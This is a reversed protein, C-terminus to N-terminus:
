DYDLVVGRKDLLEGTAQYLTLLARRYAISQALLNAASAVLDDQADLVVFATSVGLDYKKQEADLRKQAFDRAVTAQQVGAKSQEVGAIAQLVDLRIQQEQNRMQLLDRRKAIVADSLGAAARRNRIPLQLTLGVAYTPFNFGFLQDLADGLGGPIALSSTGGVLSREFFNGGLGTASYTGTLNLNPKMQNNAQKISLDDAELARQRQEMEPRYLLARIVTEEPDFTPTYAPPEASETLVVPLNRVDPHLDASVQRRVADEAQQLQYQAQTVQVQATAFQQEPQFIDLPSIAGLELELRSRELFARALELNNEQVGLRERNNVANWYANEAQFLIQIVQQRVQAKTEYLRSEAIMVGLRQIGRGRGRLLPQTLQFQLQESLSPNFSAFSSNDSRRVSSFNTQFETGTDFTQNYGIRGVQNLQSRVAAGQLVDVSPNQSRTTNFSATATPDFPSLARSIANEQQYVNLKQLNINPHNAMVLEIFDDLSLQLKGDVVYDELNAVSDIEVEYPARGWQEKFYSFDPFVNFQGGAPAALAMAFIVVISTQLPKNM